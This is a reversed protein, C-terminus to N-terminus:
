QFYDVMAVNRPHSPATDLSCRLKIPEAARLVAPSALTAAAAGVFARRSFRLSM